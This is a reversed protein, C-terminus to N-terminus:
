RIELIIDNIFLSFLTPSLSDGQRVGANIDFWETRLGHILQICSSTNNLLAKISKYCKGKINHQLLRYLLLNRDVSDFVKEMDIFCAYM